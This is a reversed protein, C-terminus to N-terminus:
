EVKQLPFEKRLIRYQDFFPVSAPSSSNIQRGPFYSADSHKSTAFGSISDSRAVTLRVINHPLFEISGQGAGLFLVMLFTLNHLM